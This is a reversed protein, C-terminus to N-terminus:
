TAAEGFPLVRAATEMKMREKLVHQYMLGGGMCLVGLVIYLWRLNSRDLNGIWHDVVTASVAGLGFMLVTYLWARTIRRSGEDPFDFGGLVWFGALLVLLIGARLPTFTFEM